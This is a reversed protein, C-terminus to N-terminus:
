GSKVAARLRDTVEPETGFWLAFGPRAQHLLMELGGVVPNGRAMAKTLLTTMQPAYVIDNVVADLPLYDLALELPPKGIMGLTTTNVVLAAGDLADARERWAVTILPSGFETALQEGRAVTRNVIRIESMGEDQLAAVIARAAGGAGLVVAPGASESWEPVKNRLSEVFGFGDTNTGRIQGNKNFVITNVAGIRDALRDTEEVASYAAEKHPVTVNVGAFGLQSLAVLSCEFAEPTVALPIYVGDINYERLWFNHLEPSLSHSVPWGMVGALRAAGTITMGNAGWM